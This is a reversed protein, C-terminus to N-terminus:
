SVVEAKHGAEILKALYSEAGAVPFGAHLFSNTRALQVGCVDAVIRADNDQAEYWDGSRVLTITSM